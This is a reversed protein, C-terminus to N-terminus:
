AVHRYLYSGAVRSLPTPLIRFIHNFWGKTGEKQPEIQLNSIVLRDYSVRGESANWQRKFRRLGENSISTRGFDLNTFGNESFWKVARWMVLNNARLSQYAMNSAGFKYFVKRGFHLFVAGAIAVSGKFALFVTGIKRSIIHDYLKRFFSWPQPPLGHRKRTLCLLKYFTKLDELRTSKVIKLGSKEAKRIARRNSSPLKEFLEHSDTDLNLLHKFYSISHSGANLEKSAGRIELLKWGRQRALDITRQYLALSADLNYYLLSCTDSFPLSVGRKGTLWSNVEMIVIVAQPEADEFLATALPTFGYTESLVSLWASTHFFSSQPFESVLEDWDARELPNFVEFAPNSIMDPAQKPM